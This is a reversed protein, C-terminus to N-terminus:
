EEDTERKHSELKQKAQTDLRKEKQKEAKTRGFKVRNEAAKKEKEVRAKAKRRQKLNIIDSM